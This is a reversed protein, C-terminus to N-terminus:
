VFTFWHESFNPVVAAISVLIRIGRLRRRTDVLFWLILTTFLKLLINICLKCDIAVHKYDYDFWGYIYIYIYLDFM